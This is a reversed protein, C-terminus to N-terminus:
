ALYLASFLVGSTWSNLLHYLDTPPLVGSLKAAEAQSDARRNTWARPAAPGLGVRALTSASSFFISLKSPLPISTGTPGADLRGDPQKMVMFTVLPLNTRSAGAEPKM